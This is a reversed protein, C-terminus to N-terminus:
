AGPLARGQDEPSERDLEESRRGLALVLVFPLAVGRILVSGFVGAVVVAVVAGLAGAALGSPTPACRSHAEGADESPPTEPEQLPIVGQGWKRRGPVTADGGGAATYRPTGPGRSPGSRAVSAALFWALALLGLVGGECATVEYLGQSGPEDFSVDYVEVDERNGGGKGLGHLYYPEISKQFRGPGVGFTANERLCELGAAWRRMRESPARRGQSDVPFLELSRYQAERVGPLGRTPQLVLAIVAVAAVAAWGARSGVAFAAVLVGLAAAAFLGGSTMVALGAAAVCLMWVRVPASRRGDTSAAAVLVPLTVALFVGLYNRNAFLGRVHFPHARCALQVLALVVNATVAVALALLARDLERRKRGAWLVWAYGVIFVEVLQAVERASGGLAGSLDAWDRGIMVVASVAAAGVLGWAAAPPLARKWQRKCLLIELAAALALAALLVDGPAIPFADKASAPGRVLAIVNVSAVGSLGAFLWLGESRARELLREVVNKWQGHGSAVPSSSEM